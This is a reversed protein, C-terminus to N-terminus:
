EDSSEADDFQQALALVTAPDMNSVRGAYEILKDALKKRKEQLATANARRLCDVCDQAYWWLGTEPDERDVDHFREPAVLEDRRYSTDQEPTLEPVPVLVKCIAPFHSQGANRAKREDSIWWLHRLDPNQPLGQRWAERVRQHDATSFGTYTWGTAM